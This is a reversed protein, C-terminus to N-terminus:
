SSASAVVNKLVDHKTVTPKTYEKKMAMGPLHDNTVSLDNRASDQLGTLMPVDAGSKDLGSLPKETVSWFTAPCTYVTGM